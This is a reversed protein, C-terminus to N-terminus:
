VSSRRLAPRAKPAATLRAAVGAPTPNEFVQRIRLELGLEARVRSILRTVQLSHGGLAFFNDDPAVSGVKLVEAFLACLAQETAGEGTGEPQPEPSTPLAEDTVRAATRPSPLGDLTSLPRAPEAAVRGFLTELDTALQRATERAFLATAYTLEGHLGDPTGDSGHREAMDLTLDFKAVDFAVPQSTATLGPLTLTDDTGNQLQLMVQFLPHRTPSRDPNLAEVVREFPVDQHEYAALDTERVRALLEVFNPDGSLDTRLVLTNIFFGVLDDLAEDTRGAVPTGIPIDTGTGLRSLLVALGAQLVMFLTCGNERALGTLRAHLASDLAVPVSSGAYSAVAPRPHDFPLALEAPADVLTKQWFSLQHNLLSDPDDETGLLERQWLTYDVYQVPLPAWAPANGQARDAYARALDRLLPEMSWGDSAIHHLVLLLIHEDEGLRFLRVQLPIEFTLDFRHAVTAAVSGSLEAESVDEIVLRPRAQDPPLVRLAPHGDAEPFLTRLVEHRAVVDSLAAALATHDPAGHLRVAFPMNYNAAKEEAQHIFWLRHQAFSLPPHDPRQRRLLPLGARDAAKTLEALAAPTQAQFLDRLGVEVGLATRARSILRTALLSHGGLDFFSDDVGVEPIGLVAAFLGTLIEEQPTRPARSATTATHDPRPLAARDLKGNPTVPLTELIVFASPVMHALLTSALRRRLATAELEHGAVPVTYAVLREGGPGDERVSVAAQAVEPIRSLAAEIEGLEIRFGRIKVQDDARGIFELAGGHGWRVLDGTRYMREGAAFPCAVFRQATLAPRNLYGRALQVGSVYLEGEVGPAVPRLAADLVYVRTNALPLGILPRESNAADWWLADITCETPGYINYCLMDDAERVRTWLASGAAEGGVQLVRPRHRADALMGEEILQEAYTPTVDLVDIGTEAIHRTMAGADRRIDDAIVHLEHGAVMWLLGEWSTDFSLSATLAVRMRRDGHSEEARAIIGARHHTYLNRLGAHDIVVGKPRGTSGSTYIIYAANGPLVERGLNGAPQQATAPDDTLVHHAGPAPPLAAVTASDTVVLAPAADQLLLAIREAPYELDVPVSPAGAKLVALLAVISEASRPLALAIVSEPGAGREALAHALRNAKANLEAFTLAASEHVVATADPTRAAQAEFLQPLTAEPTPLTVDNWHVLIRERDEASLPEAESVPRRPDAALQELVRVLSAAMNGATETDFLDTAYELAGSVGAPAGEATRHEQFDVTLDFKTTDWSVPREEAGVGPLNLTTGPGSELTMMVQFLPHRTPSRDPNLAEVVREFPVDQHEYAALDTERVRALLEVFDPDGSLDTRLVLTNIFFGVLDDLAEDTRGAVPTGIPIDTGTGLRSLLVALGAQLVMFLTCGNERALGTLRAHLASDLAVPVSSGAYSAVAPRPHDFPLALEAPAGALAKRWFGLQRSLISDPDDETGLLERQWLTYDIYRVPLPEWQPSRGTHRAEYATALDRLLPEWSWGDTAIHHIALVLHHEDPGATLLTARFPVEVALDFARTAASAAASALDPEPRDIVILGVGTADAPLVTQRPAGASEPYVTRLTEHRTVIDGLAARLADVDIRGRLRTERMCHYDPTHGELRNLFWLRLQAFSLPLEEPLPMPRLPPRAQRASGARAALGAVTPDAFVERIGLEVGFARRAQTVLRMALLSNGGLAFFDDEAGVEPLGLVGAFLGALIEERGPRPRRGGRAAGHDPVPLAKRDLKGNATVPLAAMVVVASPVMHEPLVEALEKRLRAPRLEAGPAPVVYAVLRRDGPRDERVVVAARAVGTCRVAATEVEGLEIRFGRIKVQDDARGFFELIGHGTWRVLDGTRYMRAGPEFPCAVFREATLAPRGVYGRALQVGTVYLEGTTGPAVPRLQGDLVYAHTNAAPRGIPVTTAAPDPRCPWLTVDVSAETPGYLNHLEVGDLTDFFAAQTEPPLAEGSCVVRRLTSATARAAPEQLFASLMSPVFHATTVSERTILGALYAPDKHGDPEAVVLAAGTILPWFFEWVSVDFGSPTKQLVRDDATLAYEEQMWLLRNVIAAHPVLVGKPRGTSGSTFIMYAPHDPTLPTRRPPVAPATSSPGDLVLRPVPGPPLSRGVDGTTILLAPAADALIGEIRQAPQGQDIPLYAAGAKIVGYLAVVLDASRPVAVAVVDEPGIGRATLLGALRTARADLAAYSLREDEFVVATADPTRAVQAEFLKPLTTRPLPRATDNWAWLVRDREDGDLPDLEGLTRGPDVAWQELLRALRTALREVQARDILEGRYNLRVELRAGPEVVLTLPFHTPTDRFRISVDLDRGPLAPSANVPFNDIVVNTDFLPGQLGATRQIDTLSRHDHELLGMRQDQLQEGLARLSLGPALRARVPVTNILLGVMTDAGPLEPSRGSVTCGFVVDDRGTVEGLVVAWSAQFVNSLLVGSRRAREVLATGTAEALRVVINEATTGAPHTAARGPPAILTPDQLGALTTRWAHEAAPRDRGALWLLHDRYPRAPPLLSVEVRPAPGSSEQAYLAFLEDFLITFSWGDVVIHHATLILRHHRPALTILTHRLLPPKGLHVGLARDQDALEDARTEAPGSGLQRLDIEHWSVPVDRHVVQVPEGTKRHTFGTRLAPHRAMLAAASAKLRAADLEGHLEVVYQDIYLGREEHDLRTHFLLGEQLPTLPLIDEIEPQKM